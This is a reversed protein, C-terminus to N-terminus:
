HYSCPTAHLLCTCCVAAICVQLMRKQLIRQQQAATDSQTHSAKAEAVDLDRAAILSAAALPVLDDGPAKEKPDLGKCLTLSHKYLKLLAIAHTEAAHASKHPLGLDFQIQLCLCPRFAHM